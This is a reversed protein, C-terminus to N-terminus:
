LRGSTERQMKDNGLNIVSFKLHVSLQYASPHKLGWFM